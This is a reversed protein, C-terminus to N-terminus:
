TEAGNGGRNSGASHKKRQERVLCSVANASTQGRDMFRSVLVATVRCAPGTASFGLDHVGSRQLVLTVAAFIHMCEAAWDTADEFM